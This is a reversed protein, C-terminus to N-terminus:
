HKQPISACLKAADQDYEAAYRPEVFSKALNAAAQISGCLKIGEMPVKTLLEPNRELTYLVLNAPTNFLDMLTLHEGWNASANEFINKVYSQADASAVFRDNLAQIQNLVISIGDAGRNIVLHSVAEKISSTDDYALSKVWASDIKEVHGMAEGLRYEAFSAAISDVEAQTALGAAALEDLREFFYDTYYNPNKPLKRHIVDTLVLQKFAPVSMSLLDIGWGKLAAEDRVEPDYPFDFQDMKPLWFAAVPAEAAPFQRGLAKAEERESDTLGFQILAAFASRAAEFNSGTKVANRVQSLYNQAAERHGAYVQLTAPSAALVYISYVFPAKNADNVYYDVRVQDGVAPLLKWVQEIRLDLSSEYAVADGGTYKPGLPIELSAGSTTQLTAAQNSISQIVGDAVLVHQEQSASPKFSILKADSVGFMGKAVVQAELEVFTGLLKEFDAAQAFSDYHMTIGTTCKANSDEFVVAQHKAHNVTAIRYIGSFTETDAGCFAQAPAAHTLAVFSLLLSLVVTKM